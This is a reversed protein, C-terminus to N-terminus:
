GASSLATRRGTCGASSTSAAPSRRGSQLHIRRLKGDTGIAAMSQSDPSFAAFITGETGAIPRANPETLDRVYVQRNGERVGVFAVRRGSPAIHPSNYFEVNEPFTLEVRTTVPPERPAATPRLWLTLALIALAGSLLWPIFAAPRSRGKVGRDPSTVAAPALTTLGSRGAIVEDITFRAEGIDRLRAKPDKTLCRELLRRLAPPLSGPLLTWDPDREIV